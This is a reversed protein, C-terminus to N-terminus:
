LFRKYNNRKYVYIYTGKVFLIEIEVALSYIIVIFWYLFIFEKNKMKKITDFYTIGEVKAKLNSFISILQM